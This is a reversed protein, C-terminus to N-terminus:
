ANPVPALVSRLATIERAANPKKATTMKPMQFTISLSAPPFGSGDDGGSGQYRRTSGANDGGLPKIRDLTATSGETVLVHM